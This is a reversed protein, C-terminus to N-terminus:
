AGVKLGYGRLSPCTNFLDAIQQVNGRFCFCDRARQNAKPQTKHRDFAAPPKRNYFARILVVRKSDKAYEGRRRQSPAFRANSQLGSFLALRTEHEDIDIGV